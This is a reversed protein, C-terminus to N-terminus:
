PANCFGTCVTARATCADLAPQLKDSATQRQTTHALEIGNDSICTTLAAGRLGECDTRTKFSARADAFRLECAVSRKVFRACSVGAKKCQTACDKLSAYYGVVPSNPDNPDSPGELSLADAVKAADFCPIKDRTGLPSNPDNPDPAPTGAGALLPLLALWTALCLPLLLSPRTVPPVRASAARSSGCGCAARLAGAAAVPTPERGKFLLHDQDYNIVTM